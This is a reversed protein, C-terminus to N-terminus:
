NIIFNIVAISADHKALMIHLFKTVNNYFHVDSSSYPSVSISIDSARM